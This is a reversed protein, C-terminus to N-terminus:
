HRVRTPALADRRVQESRSGIRPQGWLPVAAAAATLLLAWVYGNGLIHHWWPWTLERSEGGPALYRCGVFLLVAWAATVLPHARRALVLLAPAGWVWHHDWSIPSALLMSGAALLVAVDRAGRRWTLAAVVLLAGAFPAAVAFWLPTSPEEGLLRTMTGLASQNRVYEVGGVRGPDWVTETWYTTASSPVLVFGVLVTAAFALMARVAATRRGILLLLAVFVLPTLKIGAAIGILVGSWRGRLVLLDCCIACMLLLNIQGFFYTERVPYLASALMVLGGLQLPTIPVRQVRVFIRLTVALAVVSVALWAVTAAKGPLLALPIFLLAAVPPYTFPYGTAPDSGAYLPTGDLLSRGGYRYVALDLPDLAIAFGVGVLVAITGVVWVHSRSVGSVLSRQRDARTLLGRLTPETLAVPAVKRV